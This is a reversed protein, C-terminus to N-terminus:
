QAPPPPPEYTSASVMVSPAQGAPRALDATDDNDGPVASEIPLGTGPDVDPVVPATEMPRQAAHEEILQRQDAIFTHTDAIDATADEIMASAEPVTVAAMLELLAALVLYAAIRGFRDVETDEVLSSLGGLGQLHVLLVVAIGYALHLPSRRAGVVIAARELLFFPIYLVAIQLVFRLVLEGVEDNSYRDAIWWIASAAAPWALSAFFPNRRYGTALRVNLVLVFAWVAAVGVAGIAVLRELDQLSGLADWARQRQAPLLAGDSAERWFLFMVLASVVSILTLAAVAITMSLGVMRAGPVLRVRRRPDREVRPRVDTRLARALLTSGVRSHLPPTLGRRRLDASYVVAEVTRGGRWGSLLVIVVPPIFVVGLAWAPAFGEFDEGYAGGARLGFLTIGGVVALSIPVWVWRSLEGVGGGLRRMVASLLFLPRYSVFLTIILTVCAIALPVSSTQDFEPDNLRRELFAVVGVAGGAVVLPTAWAATVEGPTPISSGEGRRLVNRANSVVAWTWGLLSVAAVVALVLEVWSVISVREEGNMARTIQWGALGFALGASGITLLLLPLMPLLRTAAIEPQEPEPIAVIGPSESEDPLRLENASVPAAPTPVAEHVNTGQAPRATSDVDSVTSVDAM